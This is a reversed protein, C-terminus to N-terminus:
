VNVVPLSTVSSPAALARTDTHLAARGGGGGDRVDRVSEACM